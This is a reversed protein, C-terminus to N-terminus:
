FRAPPPQQRVITSLAAGSIETDSRREASESARHSFFPTAAVEAALSEYTGVPLAERAPEPAGALSPSTGCKGAMTDSQM